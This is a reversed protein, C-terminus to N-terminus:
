TLWWCNQYDQPIKCQLFDKWLNKTQSKSQLQKCCIKILGMREHITASNLSYEPKQHASLDYWTIKMKSNAKEM